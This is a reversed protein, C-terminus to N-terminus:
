FLGGFGCVTKEEFESQDSEYFVIKWLQIM